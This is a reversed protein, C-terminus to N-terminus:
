CRDTRVLQPGFFRLSAHLAFTWYDWDHGGPREEYEHEIGNALLSQHLERCDPLLEDQLGCDFRLAPLPTTAACLSAMVSRDVSAESWEDLPDAVFWKFQGIETIPSHASAAAYRGPYKGALRLAAFGGMSIGAIAQRSRDSAEPVTAQVMQPVEDVIWREYDAAAHRVYGSGDGWLGDSPMALVSPPLQSEKIARVLALHAGGKLAWAWHSGYVGHLLTIVPVDRCQRVCDPVCLTVDVRRGIAASRVTVFRLRVGDVLADAQELTRFPNM